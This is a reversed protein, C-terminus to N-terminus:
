GYITFLGVTLIFAVIALAVKGAFALFEFTADDNYYSGSRIMNAERRLSGRLAELVVEM